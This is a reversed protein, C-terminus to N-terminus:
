KAYASYMIAYFRTFNMRKISLIYLHLVNEIIKELLTTYIHRGSSRRIIQQQQQQQQQQQEQEECGMTYIHRGSSRRIIQQQQQQQQQEQEECGM